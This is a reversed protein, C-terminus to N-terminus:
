EKCRLQCALLLGHNIAKLDFINVEFFIAGDINALKLWSIPCFMDNVSAGGNNVMWGSCNVVLGISFM